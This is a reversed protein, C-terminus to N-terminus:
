ATGHSACRIGNHEAEACDALFISPRWQPSLKQKLARLVAAFGEARERKMIAVCIRVGRGNGNLATLTCLAYGYKTIGFTCDMSVPRNHGHEEAWKLMDASAIVVLPEDTSVDAHILKRDEVPKHQEEEWQLPVVGILLVDCSPM